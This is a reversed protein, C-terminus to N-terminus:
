NFEPNVYKVYKPAKIRDKLSDVMKKEIKSSLSAYFSLAAKNDKGLSRITAEIEVMEDFQSPVTMEGDFAPYYLAYVSNTDPNTTWSSNLTAIMTSGVYNTIYKKQGQGTGSVIEVWFDKYFNDTSESFLDLTISNSSVAQPKGFYVIADDPRRLYWIKLNSGVNGNPPPCLWIESDTLYFAEPTGVSKSYDDSQNLKIPMLTRWNSGDFFEVKVVTGALEPITINQEANTAPDTTAWTLFYDQDADTIVQWCYKRASALNALIEADSIFSSANDVQSIKGRVLGIQETAKSM